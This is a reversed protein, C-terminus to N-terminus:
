QVTILLLDRAFPDLASVKIFFILVMEDEGGKEKRKQFPAHHYLVIAKTGLSQHTPAEVQGKILVLSYISKLRSM